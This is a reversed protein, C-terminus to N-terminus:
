RDCPMSRNEGILPAVDAITGIAALDVLSMGYDYDDVQTLMYCAVKWALGSGTLERFPYTEGEVWLDILADAEPLVDSPQHHDLVISMCGRRRIEAIEENCKIGNDITIFLKTGIAIEEQIATMSIGYGEYIRDPLRAIVDAGLRKLMLYLIAAGTVGDADYDGFVCIKEDKYIHDWIIESVKEINRIKAPDHITESHLFEEAKEKSDVGAKAMVLSALDTYGEAKLKEVSDPIYSKKWM